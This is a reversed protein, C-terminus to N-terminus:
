LSVWLKCTFCHGLIHAKGLGSICDLLGSGERAQRGEEWGQTGRRKRQEAENEEKENDDDTVLNQLFSFSLYLIGAPVIKVEEKRQKGGVHFPVFNGPKM